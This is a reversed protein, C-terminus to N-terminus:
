PRPGAPQQRLPQQARRQTGLCLTSPAQCGKLRSPKRGSRPRRQPAYPCPRSCLQGCSACAQPCPGHGATSVCSPGTPSQSPPRARTLTLCEGGTTTSRCSAQQAFCRRRCPESSPAPRPSPQSARPVGPGDRRGQGSVEDLRPSSGTFPAFAMRTSLEIIPDTKAYLFIRCDSCDRTRLQKCAMWIDCDHCDRLFVSDSSAAIFVSCGRLGEAHMADCHDLVEVVCRTLGRLNFAQGNIEGPLRRLTTDSRDAFTYETEFVHRRYHSEDTFVRGDSSTWTEALASAQADAAKKAQLRAWFSGGDGDAAAPAPEAAEAEAAKAEAAAAEAAKAAKAAEIRAWFSGKDAAAPAPASAVPAPAVAAM